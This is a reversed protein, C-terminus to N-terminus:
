ADENRTTVPNVDDTDGAGRTDDDAKARGRTSWEYMAGSRRESVVGM